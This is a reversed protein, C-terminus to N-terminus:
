ARCKKDAHLRTNFKDVIGLATSYLPLVTFTAVIGIPMSGSFNVSTHYGQKTTNLQLFKLIRFTLLTNRFKFLFELTLFDNDTDVSEIVDFSNRLFEVGKIDEESVVRFPTSLNGRKM